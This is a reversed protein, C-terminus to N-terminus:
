TTRISTVPSAQAMFGKSRPTIMQRRAASASRRLTRFAPYSASVSEAQPAARPRLNNIRNSRILPDILPDVTVSGGNHSRPGPGTPGQSM